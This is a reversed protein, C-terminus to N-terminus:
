CPLTLLGGTSGHRPLLFPCLPFLSYSVGGPEPTGTGPAFAPDLVDIDVSLYVPDQEGDSGKPAFSDMIAKIVGATGLDDIDDAAIRLWNQRTDDDFDDRADGSLRTRLGAHVSPTTSGNSILGENGALWFM